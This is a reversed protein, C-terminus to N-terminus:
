FVVWLTKKYVHELNRSSGTNFIWLSKQTVSSIKFKFRIVTYSMTVQTCPAVLIIKISAIIYLDYLISHHEIYIPEFITRLYHDSQTIICLNQLYWFINKASVLFKLKTEDIMCM